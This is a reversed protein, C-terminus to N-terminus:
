GCVDRAQPDQRAQTAGLQCESGQDDSSPSSRTPAQHSIDAWSPKRLLSPEAFSSTRQTSQASRPLPDSISAEMPIGTQPESIQSTTRAHGVAGSM